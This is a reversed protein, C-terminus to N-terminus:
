FDIVEVTRYQLVQRIQNAFQVGVFSVVIALVIAIGLNQFAIWTNSMNIIYQSSGWILLGAALLFFPTSLYRYLTESEDMYADVVWGIVVALSAAIFWLVSNEIFLACYDLIGPPFVSFQPLNKWNVMGLVGQILGMVVLIMSILYTVFTLRSESFSRRLNYILTEFVRDIGFGRYILYLGLLTAIAGFAYDTHGLWVMIAYILMVLGIPVFIYKAV